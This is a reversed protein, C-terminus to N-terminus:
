ILFMYLKHSFNYISRDLSSKTYSVEKVTEAEASIGLCRGCPDIWRGGSARQEAAELATGSPRTGTAEGGDVAVREDVEVGDGRLSIVGEVAMAPVVVVPPVVVAVPVVHVFFCARFRIATPPQFLDVVDANTAQQNVQWREEGPGCM